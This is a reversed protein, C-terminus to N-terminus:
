LMFREDPAPDEERQREREEKNKIDHLIRLARQYDPDDDATSTLVAKCLARGARYFRRKRCVYALKLTVQTDAPDTIRVRYLYHFADELFREGLYFNGLEADLGQILGSFASLLKLAATLIQPSETRDVEQCVRALRELEQYQSRFIQLYLALSRDMEGREKLERALFYLLASYSKARDAAAMVAAELDPSELEKLARLYMYLSIEDAPVERTHHALAEGALVPDRNMLELFKEWTLIQEETEELPIAGPYWAMVSADVLGGPPLPSLQMEPPIQSVGVPPSSIQDPAGAQEPHSEPAPTSGPPAPLPEPPPPPEPPAPPAPPAPLALGKVQLRSGSLSASDLVKRYYDNLATCLLLREELSALRLDEGIAGLAWLGSAQDKQDKSELMKLLEVIVKVDGLSFLATVANARVRRSRHHILPKLNGVAEINNAEHLAECANAVVRDDPDQLYPGLVTVATPGALLGLASVIAARVKPATEKRFLGNLERVQAPGGITGLLQMATIRVEVRPHTTMRMFVDVSERRSYRQLANMGAKLVEPTQETLVLTTVLQATDANLIQGACYAAARRMMRDPSKFMQRLSDMAQSYRHKFLGLVSNGRLRPIESRLGPVFIRLAQDSTLKYFSLSEVANAKVRPDPDDLLLQLYDFTAPAQVRALAGAVTARVKVSDSNRALKVLHDAARAIRLRALSLVGALTVDETGDALAAMLLEAVKPDQSHGLALAAARRRRPDPDHIAKELCNMARGCETKGLAETAKLFVPNSSDEAISAIIEDAEPSQYAALAGVVRDALFADKALHALVPLSQPLRIRGLTEVVRDMQFADSGKIAETHLKLVSPTLLDYAAGKLKEINLDKLRPFPKVAQPDIHRFIPWAAAAGFRSIGKAHALAQIRKAQEFVTRDTDRLALALLKDLEPYELDDLYNELRILAFVRVQPDPTAYLEELEKLIPNSM